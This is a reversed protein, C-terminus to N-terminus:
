RRSPAGDCKMQLLEASMFQFSRVFSKPHKDIYLCKLLKLLSIKRTQKRVTGGAINCCTNKIFKACM